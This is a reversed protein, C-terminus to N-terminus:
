SPNYKSYYNKYVIYFIIEQFLFFVSATLNGFCGTVLIKNFSSLNGIAAGLALIEELTLATVELSTFSSKPFLILYISSPPLDFIPISDVIISRLFFGFIKLNPPKFIFSM